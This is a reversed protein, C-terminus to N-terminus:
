RKEMVFYDCVIDENSYSRASTARNNAKNTKAAMATRLMIMFSKTITVSIAPATCAHSRIGYTCM